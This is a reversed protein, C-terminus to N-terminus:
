RAPRRAKTTCRSRAERPPQQRLLPEPQAAVRRAPGVDVGQCVAQRERLFRGVEAFVDMHWDVVRGSRVPTDYIQFAGGNAAVLAGEVKLHAASKTTWKAKSMSGSTTFGWAMLDWPLGRSDM